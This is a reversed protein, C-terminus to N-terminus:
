TSNQARYLFQNKSGNLLILKAASLQVRLITLFVSCRLIPPFLPPQLLNITNRTTAQQPEPQFYIFVTPNLKTLVM